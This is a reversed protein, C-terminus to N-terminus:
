RGRRVAHEAVVGDLDAVMDGDAGVGDKFGSGNAVHDLYALVADDHM